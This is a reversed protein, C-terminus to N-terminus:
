RASGDPLRSGRALSGLIRSGLAGTARRVDGPVGMLHAWALLAFTAAECADPDIGLDSGPRVAPPRLEREVARVLEPNRSGGGILFVGGVGLRALRGRFADGVTRATFEMLAAILDVWEAPEGPSLGLSLEPVLPMGFEERGTSRPLSKGLFPHALLRHLLKRNVKGHRALQGERDFASAGGTALYAVGDILAVGPGTDFALPEEPSEEPPLWTVNGMGGFNQIARAAGPRSNMIRDAWPVLPAGEGGHAM